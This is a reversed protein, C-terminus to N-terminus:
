FLFKCKNGTVKVRTEFKKGVSTHCWFSSNEEVSVLDIRLSYVNFLTSFTEKFIIHRQSIRTPNTSFHFEKTTSHGDRQTFSFKKVQHKTVCQLIM